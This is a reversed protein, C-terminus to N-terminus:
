LSNAGGSFDDVYFSGIVRQVFEGDIDYQGAHKRIIRNLLLPSSTVGFVVRVFRNHVITPENSFVGGFWLFRLFNDHDKDISIQLITKVIDVTLTYVFTCFRLNVTIM